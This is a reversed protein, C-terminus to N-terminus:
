LNPIASELYKSTSLLNAHENSTLSVATISCLSGQIIDKLSLNSCLEYKTASSPGWEMEALM